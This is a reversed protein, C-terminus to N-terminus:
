GAVGSEKKIGGCLGFWVVLWGPLGRVCAGLSGLFLFVLLNVVWVAVYILGPARLVWTWLFGLLLAAGFGIGFIYARATLVDGYFETLYTTDVQDKYAKVMDYLELATTNTIYCRNMVEKTPFQPLCYGQKINSETPAVNGICYIMDPDYTTPCSPLCVGMTKINLPMFFPTEGKCITGNWDYGQTLVEVHGGLLAERGIWCM